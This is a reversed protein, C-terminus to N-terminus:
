IFLVAALAVALGAPRAVLAGAASTSSRSAGSGTTSVAAGLNFTPTGTAFVTGSYSAEAQGGQPVATSVATAVSSPVALTATNSVGPLGTGSPIMVISSTSAANFDNQAMAIELNELDYVVYASRLFTDGFLIIGGNTVEIPDIGLTCAESGDQFQLGSDILLESMPVTITPGGQGGFGYIISANAKTYQCPVMNTGEVSIAGMGSIIANAIDAPLETNPTGSDLTAPVALDSSSLLTTGSETQISVSSLTVTLSSVNGGPTEPQMPLSILDGTYKTTDIAGFLISGADADADNLWLSYAQRQIYGDEQLAGVITPKERNCENYMYCIFEGAEFSVGLLGTYDVSADTVYGMSMNKITASGLGVTETIYSGADWDGPEYYSANFDNAVVKYTSSKSPDFVGNTCYGQKCTQAETSLIWMDSSGTDLQLALKQSPTGVTVNVWYQLQNLPTKSNILSVDVSRKQHIGGDAHIAKKTFDLQLFDSASAAALGTALAALLVSPTLM